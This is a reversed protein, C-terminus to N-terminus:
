KAARDWAILLQAYDRVESGIQSADCTQLERVALSFVECMRKAGTQAKPLKDFLEGLRSARQVLDLLDDTAAQLREAFLCDPSEAIARAREEYKSNDAVQERIVEYVAEGVQQRVLDKANLGSESPPAHVVKGNVRRLSRVRDAVLCLWIWDENYWYPVPPFDRIGWRLALCGSSIGTPGRYADTHEAELKTIRIPLSDPVDELIRLCDAQSQGHSCAMGTAGLILQKAHDALSLDDRGVYGCGSAIACGKLEAIMADLVGPGDGRVILGNEEHIGFVIDDDIWFCMDSLHQRAHAIAINRMGGPEWTGSRPTRLLRRIMKECGPPWKSKEAAILEACAVMRLGSVQITALRRSWHELETALRDCRDDDFIVIAEWQPVQYELRLNDLSLLLRKVCGLRGKSIVYIRMETM